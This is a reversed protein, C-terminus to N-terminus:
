FEYNFLKIYEENRKEVIKKTREDYYDRYNRKPRKTDYQIHCLTKTKINIMDCMTDFDEQLNEYRIIFDFINKKLLKFQPMSCSSKREEVFEQFEIEKPLTKHANRKNRNDITRLHYYWSVARDWPNRISTFKLYQDPDDGNKKIHNTIENFKPHATLYNKMASDEEIGEEKLIEILTKRISSGACKGIHFFIFNKQKSYM